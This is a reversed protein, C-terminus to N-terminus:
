IFITFQNNNRSRIRNQNVKHISLYIKQQFAQNSFSNIANYVYDILKAPVNIYM